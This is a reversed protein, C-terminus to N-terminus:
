HSGKHHHRGIFLGLFGLVIAGLGLLGLAKAGVETSVSGPYQHQLLAILLAVCGGLVLVIFWVGRLSVIPQQASQATSHSSILPQPEPKTLRKDLERTLRHQLQSRHQQDKFYMGM